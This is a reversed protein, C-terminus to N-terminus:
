RRDDSQADATGEQEDATQYPLSLLISLGQGPAGSIFIGYRSGYHLQIREHISYLGFHDKPEEQRKMVRNLHAIREESLGTGNDTVTLLLSTGSLQGKITVEGARDLTSLGHILANEILPQLLFKLILAQEVQPEITIQFRFHQFRVKQINVYSNLIALEESLPVPAGTGRFSYTLLQNLSDVMEKINDQKQIIAMWRVSNLTNYLFHPSLQNQLVRIETEKKKAEQRVAQKILQEIEFMVSIFTDNMEVIEIAGKVRKLNGPKVGKIGQKMNANLKQIPIVLDTAMLQIVALGLLICILVIIFSLQSVKYIPAYMAQLSLEASLRWGNHFSHESFASMRNAETFQVGNDLITEGDKTLLRLLADEQFNNNSIISHIAETDVVVTLVGLDNLKTDRIVRGIRFSDFEQQGDTFTEPVFWTASGSGARIKNIYDPNSIGYNNLDSKGYSYIGFPTSIKISRIYKNQEDGLWWVNIKNNLENEIEMKNFNSAPKERILQHVQSDTILQKSLQEYNRLRDDIKQMMLNLLDSSYGSAMEKSTSTYSSTVMYIGALAPLIILPMFVLILKMPLRIKRWHQRLTRRKM